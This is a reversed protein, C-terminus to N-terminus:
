IQSANYLSYFYGKEKMLSDFDGTEVIRGGKVAVIQDYKTLSSKELRHAVVIRTLNEVGLVAEDVERATLNDLSATAEDMLLVPSNRILCRAISVRQKEGGSLNEGREGCRYEKGKLAILEYLGAKKVADEYIEDDFEKFMTINDKITANFLFVNQQIISVIDYLGDVGLTRLEKGDIFINGEYDTFRGTILNLVTSKGGGSGGVLVYSKGKEFKLSVDHLVKGDKEDYAFSVNRFEVSDNFGTVTEKPTRSKQPKIEEALRDILASAAKRNSWLPIINKVPNLMNNLLQVSAFVGGITIIGKFSFYTGIIVTVILAALSSGGSIIGAADNTERRKRKVEELAANQEEFIQLAEKEAKFSKIVIFGNLLDKVQDVFAANKSSAQKERVTLGAGYKVAVSFPIIMIALVCTALKYNIYLTSALGGFFSILNNFIEVNGALYRTEISAIDNSFASIFRASDSHAFAGIPKQLLRGFVYYKFQSLGKKLYRNRFTKQALSVLLSATTAAVTLFAATKLRQVDRFEMAETVSRIIFAVSLDTGAGAAVCVLTMIFNTRNGAYFRKRCAKSDSM